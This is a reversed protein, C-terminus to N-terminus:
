EDRHRRHAATVRWPTLSIADMKKINDDGGIDQRPLRLKAVTAFPSLQEPWEVCLDEVPIRDLDICLQVQVDFEYPRGRM